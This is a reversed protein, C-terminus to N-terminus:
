KWFVKGSLIVIRDQPHAKIYAAAQALTDCAVYSCLALNFSENKCFPFVQLTIMILNEM